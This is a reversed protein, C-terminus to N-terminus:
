NKREFWAELIKKAIPGAENSGEGASEKLVTVVLEPDYAPAFLTISAHPLTEEGGHQATGTKCAVSVHRMEASGSAGEVSMFNRGDVKLNENKVKFEFLPWGTGGPNCAQIMGERILGITKENLIKQSKVPVKQSKVVHPQYKDGGNAIVQTWLNVQMPTTLLFGQGIGYHFTDGLYWTEGIIEKKWDKTPVTGSVEGPLDIGTPKGVGLTYSMEALKEVGIKEALKYYYIDNSRALAKRVDVKGEKGGRQTFFWNAFSFGGVRLIGTDEVLYNEDIIGNQLGAASTVIKYTSGPPYAGSTARNLLPQGDGDTLISAITRYASDSAPRYTTDLTFLNPDFSPKSVLALIEGTPTSVIATGKSVDKMAEYVRQQFAIDLTLSLDKGPIADTIGLIRTPKGLADIEILQKGDVGKLETEYSREVGMKGLFDHLQYSSFAESELQEKTIQGTYGLVHASIDKFPYERLSDVEINKEGKAIRPLADEKSLITTDDSHIQRFGPTNLVLPIKNRDFIVGRPARIIQTRTRNSDSLNKYYAGHVVQLTFVKFFLVAISTCLFVILLFGRMQYQSHGENFRRHTKELRIHDGLAIGHKWM